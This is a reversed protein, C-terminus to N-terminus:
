SKNKIHNILNIIGENFETEITWGLDKVKQNSIYYRKDNFPRDQIYTIWKDYEKNDTPKIKDMSGLWYDLKVKNAGKVKAGINKLVKSKPYKNKLIDILIDYEDDEMIPTGTNYYKDSSYNILEELEEISFSSAINIPDDNINQLKKVLKAM